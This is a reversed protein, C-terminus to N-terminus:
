TSSGNVVTVRKHRQRGGSALSDLLEKYRLAPGGRPSRDGVEWRYVTVPTVGVSKAVESLSLGAALRISRAAGTRALARVGSLEVLESPEM